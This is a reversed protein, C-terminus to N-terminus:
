RCDRGALGFLNRDPRHFLLLIPGDVVQPAPHFNVVASVDQVRILDRVVRIRSVAFQLAVDHQVAARVVLVDLRTVANVIDARFGSSEM